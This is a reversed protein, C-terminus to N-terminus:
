RPRTEVPGIGLATQIQPLQLALEGVGTEIAPTLWTDQEVFFVRNGFPKRLIDPTGKAFVGQSPVPLAHAWRAVRLDTVDKTHFGLMPLLDTEIQRQFEGRLKTYADKQSLAARATPLPMARYLTLVTNRGRAQNLSGVVVDTAMPSPDGVTQAKQNVLFLDYFRNMLPKDVLVAATLYSRYDIERIAEQREPEIDQIIKAAVFKPCAMIAANAIIGKLSKDASEYLIKVKDGIVSVRLVTCGARLHSSPVGANLTHKLLQEAVGANGGPAVCLPATEAALFSYGAAASIEKPSAAFASWCYSDIAHTLLPPLTGLADHLARAFTKGDLTKLRAAEAANTPPIQPYAGTKGAYIERMHAHFRAYVAKHEPEAAGDWFGLSLKGDLGFPKEAPATQVIKDLGLEMYYRHFASGPQPASFYASGLGFDIGRWSQGRANGGFRPAQELVIPKSDRLAYASFLGSLGGGIVVLETEEWHKPLANKRLYGPIDWLLAHARSFDDGFFSAAAKDNLSRDIPGYADFFGGPSTTGAFLPWHQSFYWAGAGTVAAGLFERRNIGRM